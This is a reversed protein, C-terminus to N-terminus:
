TNLFDSEVFSFMLEAEVAIEGNVSAKGHLQATRSRDRLVETELVLQDGPVVMRRFKVKDTAMFLALKGAHEPNTRVVVGGVQALAEVMLVGPMIPRTPFHGRFFGDNITVNKIGVAKKGKELSVIRDVLLFPYRHPLIKMIQETTLEPHEMQLGAPLFSNKDYRRKQQQIKKLLEINLTHGSRVAFFHGKVPCGLLYMDGILDLVKHRAPEDPFHFKNDVPGQAGIVLTNEYNAGKGYGQSQLAQAEEELCFTRCPAIEKEFTEPTVETSFFQSRLFSDPYSLSYSVRFGPYPVVLLSAGDRHVSLPELVEIFNRPAEQEVLGAAKIARVFALSSGDLGPLEEGSIEVTLNDIELGHLASLFHEITAVAVASNRLLTCRSTTGDALIHEFDIKIEPRDPMDVRVFRIGSGAAAPLARIQTEVGSHLGPSRFVIEKAITKQNM